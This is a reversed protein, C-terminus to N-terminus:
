RSYLVAVSVAIPLTLMTFGWAWASWILPQYSVTSRLLAAAPLGLLLAASAAVWWPTAVRFLQGFAILALCASIVACLSRAAWEALSTPIPHLQAEIPDRRMVQAEIASWAMEVTTDDLIVSDTRELWRRLAPGAIVHVGEITRVEDETPWKSLGRGWLVVVPTVPIDQSKFPQWLRLRRGNDRAQAIAEHLRRAGYDSKWSCGSWKTEVSFAGGPGILAHDIDRLGLSFHNVLRWGQRQLRRLEQATWQEAQDGMMAPATNTYQMAVVWVAGPAAVLAAGLVLGRVFVSPILLGSLLVAGEAVVIFAGFLWWTERLFERQATRARGRAWSGARADGALSRRRFWASWHQLARVLRNDLVRLPSTLHNSSRM